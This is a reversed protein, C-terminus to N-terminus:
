LWPLKGLPLLQHWLSVISCCRGCLFLNRPLALLYFRVTCFAELTFIERLHPRKRSQLPQKLAQSSAADLDRQGRGGFLIFELSILLDGTDSRKQGLLRWRVVHGVALRVRINKKGRLLLQPNRAGCIIQLDDSIRFDDKEAHLRM